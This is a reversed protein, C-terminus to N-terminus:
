SSFQYPERKCHLEKYIMPLNLVISDGWGEGLYSARPCFHWKEWVKEKLVLIMNGCIIM